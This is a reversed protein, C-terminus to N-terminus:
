IAKKFPAGLPLGLYRLPLSSINCSLISALKEIHPVEGVVLLKSKQLNVKLGSIAEFCMFIHDLTLIQDNNADCMIFTDDVFLLHSIALPTNNLSDVRFGSLFFGL